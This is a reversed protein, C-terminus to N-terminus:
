ALTFEFEKVSKIIFSRWAKLDTDYVAIYDKEKSKERKDQTSEVLPIVEPNLTCNMIRETGDKKTFTIKVNREQLLVKIWQDFRKWDNDNWDKTVNKSVTM